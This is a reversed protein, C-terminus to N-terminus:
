CSLKFDYLELLETYSYAYDLTSSFLISTDWIKKLFDCYAFLNITM